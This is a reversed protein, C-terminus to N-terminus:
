VAGEVIDIRLSPKRLVQSVDIIEADLVPDVAAKSNSALWDFSAVYGGGDLVALM